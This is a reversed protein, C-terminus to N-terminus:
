SNGNVWGELLTSHEWSLVLLACIQCREHESRPASAHRLCNAQGVLKNEARYSSFTRHVPRVSRSREEVPNACVMNRIEGLHVDMCDPCAGSLDMCLSCVNDRIREHEKVDDVFMPYGM